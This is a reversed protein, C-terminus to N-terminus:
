KNRFVVRSVHKTWRTRSGSDVLMKEVSFITFRIFAKVPRPSSNRPFRESRSGSCGVGKYSDIHTNDRYQVQIVYNQGVLFVAKAESFDLPYM